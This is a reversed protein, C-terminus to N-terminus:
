KLWIKTMETANRKHAHCAHLTWPIRVIQFLATSFSGEKTLNTSRDGKLFVYASRTLNTTEKKSRACRCRRPQMTKTTIGHIYGFLDESFLPLSIYSIFFSRSSSELFGLKATRPWESFFFTTSTALELTKATLTSSLCLSLLWNTYTSDGLQHHFFSLCGVGHIQFIKHISWHCVIRYVRNPVDPVVSSGKWCYTTILVWVPSKMDAMYLIM